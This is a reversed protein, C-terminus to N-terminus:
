AIFMSCIIAAAIFSATLSYRLAIRKGTKGVTGAIVGFGGDAAEISTFCLRVDRIRSNLEIVHNTRSGENCDAM